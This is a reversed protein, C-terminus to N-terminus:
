GCPPFAGTEDQPQEPGIRLKEINREKFPVKEFNFDFKEFTVGLTEFMEPKLGDQRIWLYPYLDYIGTPLYCRPLHYSVSFTQYTSGIVKAMQGSAAIAARVFDEEPDDIRRLIFMGVFINNSNSSGFSLVEVGQPIGPARLRTRITLERSDNRPIPYIGNGEEISVRIDLIKRLTIEKKLHGKDNIDGQSFVVEGDRVAVQATALRYNAVYVYLKFTGSLGGGPQSEPSPLRLSFDGKHDTFTGIKFQELWVYVDEPSVNNEIAVSGQITQHDNSIESSNSFPNDTCTAIILFLLLLFPYKLPRTLTKM